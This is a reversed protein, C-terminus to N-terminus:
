HKQLDGARDIKLRFSSFFELSSVWQYSPCVNADILGFIFKNHDFTSHNAYITVNFDM